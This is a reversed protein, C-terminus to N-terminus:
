PDGTACLLEDATGGMRVYATDHFLKAIKQQAM